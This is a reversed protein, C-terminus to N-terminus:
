LAWSDSGTHNRKEDAELFQRLIEDAQQGLKEHDPKPTSLITHFISRGLEPEINTISPKGYRITSVIVGGTMRTGEKGLLIAILFPM